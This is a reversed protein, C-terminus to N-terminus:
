PLLLRVVPLDLQKEVLAYAVLMLMALRGNIMEAQQLEFRETVPLDTSIGLPDWSVDGAVSDLAYENFGLGKSMRSQTERLEFAADIAAGALLAVWLGPQELGSNIVSPSLGVMNMPQLSEQSPWGLAALEQAPWGLAALMGLRGHKVEACRLQVLNEATALRLPDFGANGIFAASVFFGRGFLTHSPRRSYTSPQMPLRPSPTSSSSLLAAVSIALMQVPIQRAQHIGM